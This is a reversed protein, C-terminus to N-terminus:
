FESQWITNVLVNFLSKDAVIVVVAQGVEYQKIVAAIFDVEVISSRGDLGYKCLVVCLRSSVETVTPSYLLTVKVAVPQRIEYVVLSALGTQPYRM